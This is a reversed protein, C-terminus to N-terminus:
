RLRRIPRGSCPYNTASPDVLRPPFRELHRLRDEARGPPTTSSATQSRRVSRWGTPHLGSHPVSWGSNSGCRFVQSRLIKPSAKSNALREGKVPDQLKIIYDVFRTPPTEDLPYSAIEAAVVEPSVLCIM